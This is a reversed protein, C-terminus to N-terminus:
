LVGLRLVDSAALLLLLLVIITPVRVHDSCCVRHHWGHHCEEGPGIAGGCWRCALRVGM